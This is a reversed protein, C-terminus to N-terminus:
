TKNAAELLEYNNSFLSLSFKLLYCAILNGYHNYRLNRVLNIWNCINVGETTLALTSRKNTKSETSFVLVTMGISTLFVLKFIPTFPLLCHFLTFPSLLFDSILILGLGQSVSDALTRDGATWVGLAKGRPLKWTLFLGSSLLFSEGM